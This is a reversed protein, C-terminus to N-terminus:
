YSPIVNSSQLECLLCDLWAKIYEPGSLDTIKKLKLFVLLRLRRKTGKPEIDLADLYPSFPDEHDACGLLVPLHGQIHHKGNLPKWDSPIFDEPDEKKAAAYARKLIDVESTRAEEPHYIKVVMELDTYPVGCFKQPTNPTPVLDVDFVATGRGALELLQPISSPDFSFRQEKGGPEKAKFSWVGQGRLQKVTYSAEAAATESRTHREVKDLHKERRFAAHQGFAHRDMRQFVSLLLVFFPFDDFIDIGESCVIRGRDFYWIWM